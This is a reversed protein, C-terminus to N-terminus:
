FPSATLYNWWCCSNEHSLKDGRFRDNEQMPMVMRDGNPYDLPALLVEDTPRAHSWGQALAQAVQVSTLSGKFSDPAILITLPTAM